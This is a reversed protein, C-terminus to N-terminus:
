SEGFGFEKKIATAAFRRLRTISIAKAPLDVAVIQIHSEKELLDNFPKCQLKWCRLTIRTSDKASDTEIKKTYLDILVDAVVKENTTLEDYLKHRVPEKPNPEKTKLRLGEWGEIMLQGKQIDNSIAYISEIPMCDNLKMGFERDEYLKDKVEQIYHALYYIYLENEHKPSMLERGMNMTILKM